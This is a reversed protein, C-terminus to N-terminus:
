VKMNEENERTEGDGFGSRDLGAASAAASWLALNERARVLADASWKKTVVVIIFSMMTPRVFQLLSDDYDEKYNDTKFMSPDDVFYTLM